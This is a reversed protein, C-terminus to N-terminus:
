GYIEININLNEVHEKFVKLKDQNQKFADIDSIINKLAITKLEEIKGKVSLKLSDYIDKESENLIREIEPYIHNGVYGKGGESGLLIKKCNGLYKNVEDTSHTNIRRNIVLNETSIRHNYTISKDEIEINIDEKSISGYKSIKSNISNLLDQFDAGNKVMSIAKIKLNLCENIREKCKDLFNNVIQRATSTKFGGININLPLNAGRSTNLSNGNKVDHYAENVKKELEELEILSTKKFSMNNVDNLSQKFTEEVDGYDDLSKKLLKQLNKVAELLKDQHIKTRHICNKIRIFKRKEFLKYMETEAKQFEADEEKLVAGYEEKYIEEHFDNVKGLNLNFAYNAELSLHYDNCIVNIAHEKQEKVDQCKDKDSRWYAAEFINHVLCVPVVKNREELLQFFDTSVKSIASNSSQVFIILDAREVIAKYAPSDFNVNAGDFGAMDVLLVNEQLLRGGETHIATLLTKDKKNELLGCKVYKNINDKSFELKNVKVHKIENKEILGNLFDLIDNMQAEKDEPNCSEYVELYDDGNAKRSIISPRVTCELFHTPSVYNKAVLNVFTSKGSKVPGVVLVVFSPHHFEKSRNELQKVYHQLSSMFSNNSIDFKDIINQKIHNEILSAYDFIEQTTM